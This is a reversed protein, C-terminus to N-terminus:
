KSSSSDRLSTRQAHELFEPFAKGVGQFAQPRDNMKQKTQHDIRRAASNRNLKIEWCIKLEPANESTMM